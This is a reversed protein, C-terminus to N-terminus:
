KDKKKKKYKRPQRREVRDPKILESLKEDGTIIAGPPRVTKRGARYNRLFCSCLILRGIKDLGLFGKSHCKGCSVDAYDDLRIKESKSNPSM